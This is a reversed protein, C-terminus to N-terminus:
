LLSLVGYGIPAAVLIGDFRDLVGGHGPLMAGSDKVGARRKIASEFLDGAQSAVTVLAGFLGGSLRSLGLLPATLVGLLIGAALGAAAGEWTKGPSTRPAMKHRGFARGAFYAATDNAWIVILFALVSWATQEFRWRALMGMPVALYAPGLILASPVAGGVLRLLSYILVVAWLILIALAVEPSQTTAVWFNLVWLVAVGVLVVVARGAESLPQLRFLERWGLVAIIWTLVDWWLGGAWLALAVLPIGVVATLVRQQLSTM